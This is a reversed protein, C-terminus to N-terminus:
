GPKSVTGRRKEFYGRVQREMEEFGIELGEARIAIGEMKVGEAEEAGIRGTYKEPEKLRLYLCEGNGRDVAEIDEWAVLGIRRGLETGNFVVGEPSLALGANEKDLVKIHHRLLGGSGMILAFLTLNLRKSESFIIVGVVVAVAAIFIIRLVGLKKRKGNDFQIVTKEGKTGLM